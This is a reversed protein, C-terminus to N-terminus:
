AKFWEMNGHQAKFREMNGDGRYKVKFACKSGICKRGSPLEVLEWTDNQLLSDYSSDEVGKSGIIGNLQKWKRSFDGAMAEDLTQPEGTQYVAYAVHQITFTATNIYM